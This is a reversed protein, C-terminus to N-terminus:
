HYVADFRLTSLFKTQIDFALKMPEQIHVLEQTEDSSFKFDVDEIRVPTSRCLIVLFGDVSVLEDFQIHMKLTDTDLGTEERIERLAGEQWTDKKEVYGGPMCVEGIPEIARRVGLFGKQVPLCSQVVLPVAVVVVPLPNLWVTQRCQENQCRYPYAKSAYEHGCYHCHKHRHHKKM